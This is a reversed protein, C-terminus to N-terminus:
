WLSISEEDTTGYFDAVDFSSLASETDEEFLSTLTCDAVCVNREFFHVRSFVVLAYETKDVWDVQLIAGRKAEFDFSINSRIITALSRNTLGNAKTGSSLARVTLCVERTRVDVFTHALDGIVPGFLRTENTHLLM